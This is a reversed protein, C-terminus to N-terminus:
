YVPIVVASYEGTFQGAPTSGAVNVIMSITYDTRGSESDSYAVVDGSVYKFLNPVAYDDAAQGFSTQTSPV